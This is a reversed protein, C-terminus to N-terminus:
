DINEDEDIDLNQMMHEILLENLVEMKGQLRLMEDRVEQQKANIKLVFPDETNEESSSCCSNDGIIVTIDDDIESM